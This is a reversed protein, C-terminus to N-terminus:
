VTRRLKIEYKATKLNICPNCRGCPRCLNTPNECTWFCDMPIRRSKFEKLIDCKSVYRLPFNLKIKRGGIEAASEIFKDFLETNPSCLRDLVLTSDLGGSWIVVNIAKSM